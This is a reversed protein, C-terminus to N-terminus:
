VYVFSSLHHLAGGWGWAAPLWPGDQGMLTGAAVEVETCNSFAGMVDYGEVQSGRLRCLPSGETPSIM